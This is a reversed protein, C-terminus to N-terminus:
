KLERKLISLFRFTELAFFMGSLWAGGFVYGAMIDSPNTHGVYVISISYAVLVIGFCIMLVSIIVYNRHHRILMFLFFGLVSVLFMTPENPFNSRINNFLYSFLWHVGTAFLFTGMLTIGYVLLELWLNKRNFIIMLVTMIIFIGLAKPSSLIHFTSLFGKWQSNFADNAIDRFIVDFHVFEKSVFDQIMGVM